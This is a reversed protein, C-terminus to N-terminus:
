PGRLEFVGLCNITLRLYYVLPQQPALMKHTCLDPRGMKLIKSKSFPEYGCIRRRLYDLFTQAKVCTHLEFHDRFGGICSFCLECGLLTSTLTVNGRTVLAELHSLHLIEACLFMENEVNRM